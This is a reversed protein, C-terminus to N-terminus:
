LFLYGLMLGGVGLALLSPGWLEWTNNVRARRPDKPDILLGLTMGEKYQTSDSSQVPVELLNGEQTWYRVKLEWRYGKEGDAALKASLITGEARFAQHSYRWDQFLVLLGALFSGTGILFLVLFKVQHIREKFV